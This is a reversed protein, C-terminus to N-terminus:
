QVPLGDGQVRESEHVCLLCTNKHRINCGRLVIVSTDLNHHIDCRSGVVGIHHEATHTRVLMDSNIDMQAGPAVRM